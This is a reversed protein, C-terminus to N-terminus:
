KNGAAESGLPKRNLYRIVADEVWAQNYFDSRHQKEMNHSADGASLKLDRAQSTLLANVFEAPSQSFGLFFARRKLHEHIKKIADCIDKDIAEIEKNRDLNSLFSSNEKGPMLPVDVLVDYCTNGAPVSGSLKIKHELHIPHPATLHPAIKQQVMSLKLKDEGLIKRLPPDCMFSTPDGPVQLKRIKVYNWLAALIRPRTDVDIGLIEQLAQSLKFKEPAYNMELRIIATFEKEGKRKVEFGEHPVPSRTGEWLIVHNDPYLNHDLYVTMKKIFTSFKPYLDSSKLVNGVGVVSDNGDELIRGIIKLSWSPPGYNEQEDTQNAFTNFVYLRLTKQVRLPNRLTHEIDTKQRYIAADMRCEYERLQMYLASEPLIAAVKDPIENEALKRKKRRVAPTLEMTKLPSATGQGASSGGGSLRSPPKQASAGRKMSTGGSTGLNATPPSSIGGNPNIIRPATQPSGFAQGQPEPPRFHGTFQPGGQIQVHPPVLPATPRNPNQM